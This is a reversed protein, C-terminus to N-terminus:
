SVSQQAYPKCLDVFDESLEGNEWEEVNEVIQDICRNTSEALTVVALEKHLPLIVFELFSKQSKRFSTVDGTRECGFSIPLGLRREEDGQNYFEAALRTAWREHMEWPMAAHGLDACKICCRGIMRRSESNMEVEVGSSFRSRFETLFTNHNSMDTALILDVVTARFNACLERSAKELINHEPEQMIHFCTSAHLNELVSRDNYTLALPHATNILFTNTRGFHGVDHALGAINM